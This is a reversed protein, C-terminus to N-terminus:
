RRIFSLYQQGRGFFPAFRTLTPFREEGLAAQFERLAAATETAFPDVLGAVEGVLGAIGERNGTNLEGYLAEGLPILPQNLEPSRPPHLFRHDLLNHLNELYSQRVIENFGPDPNHISKYWRWDTFFRPSAGQVDFQLDDGDRSLADIADPIPLLQGTLPQLVNDLIWDRIPRSMAPLTALHPEFFPILQAVKQDIPAEKPLWLDAAIRRLIESLFSVNDMCTIVLIGGPKVHGAVRRLFAEPHTQGSIVGECFVGDYLGDSQYSEILGLETQWNDAKPFYDSLRKRTEQLGTPNGDVLRYHGPALSLTFLANHGSGPGFELLRKGQLLGPPLGLLRYLAARRRFHNNLDSIEQAVPSIRNERYYDLFPQPSM